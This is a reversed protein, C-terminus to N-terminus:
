NCYMCWFLKYKQNLNHMLTNNQSYCIFFHNTYDAKAYYDCKLIYAGVFTPSVWHIVKATKVGLANLGNRLLDDTKILTSGEEM